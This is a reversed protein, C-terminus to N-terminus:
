GSSTIGGNAGSYTVCFWNTGDSSTIEIMDGLLCTGGVFTVKDRLTITTPSADIHIGSITDSTAAVIDINNSAIDNMLFTANWGTTSNAPLTIDYASADADITFHKGSDGETMTKAAAINEVIVKHGGIAAGAGLDLSRKLKETLVELHALGFRKGM